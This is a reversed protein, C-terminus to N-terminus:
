RASTAQAERLKRRDLVCDRSVVDERSLPGDDYRPGLDRKMFVYSVSALDEHSECLWRLYMRAFGVTKQSRFRVLVKRWRQNEFALYHNEPREWTLPAGGRVFDIERRDALVGRVVIWGRERRPSVFLAWRRKLGLADGPWLVYSRAASAEPLRDEALTAILLHAFVVVAAVRLPLVSVDRRVGDATKPAGVLKELRDMWSSPLTFLWAAASIASFIGIYLTAAIGAHFAVFALALGGRFWARRPGLVLLFPGILELALSAWTLGKLLYWRPYLWRGTATVFQDASLAHYVADGTWWHAFHAKLVGAVFYILFLQGYLVVTTPDFVRAPPMDDGRRSALWRDISWRAGIPTLAMFFLMNRIVDDGGQNVLWNRQHLSGVLFWCGLAALRSSFGFFLLLAVVATAIMVGTVWAPSGGWFYARLLAPQGASARPLWGGDSYLAVVDASRNYVDVIVLMGFAMRLLALARLDIALNEFLRTSLWATLKASHARM